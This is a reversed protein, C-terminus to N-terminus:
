INNPGSLFVHVGAVRDAKHHVVKSARGEVKESTGIACEESGRSNLLYKVDVCYQRM